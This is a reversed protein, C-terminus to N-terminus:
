MSGECIGGEPAPSHVSGHRLSCVASAAANAAIAHWWWGRGVANRWGGVSCIAPGVHRSQDGLVVGDAVVVAVVVGLAELVDGLGGDGAVGVDGVAVLVGTRKCAPARAARCEIGVPERRFRGSCSRGKGGGRGEQGCWAEVGGARARPGLGAVTAVAHLGQVAEQLVAITLPAPQHIPSPM